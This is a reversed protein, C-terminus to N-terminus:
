RKGLAGVARGHCPSAMRAHTAVAAPPGSTRSTRSNGSGAGPGPSTTTSGSMPIDIVVKAASPNATDFIDGAILLGDIERERILAILWDLFYGQEHSRDHGHLHHGLHWDATHLLRM